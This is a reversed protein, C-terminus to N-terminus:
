RGKFVAERKEVFAKFAERSDESAGTRSHRETEVDIYDRLSMNEASIFNKKM